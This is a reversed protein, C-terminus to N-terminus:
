KRSRLVDDAMVSLEELQVKNNRRLKQEVFGKFAESDEKYHSPFYARAINEALERKTM